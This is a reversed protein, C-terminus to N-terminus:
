NNNKCLGKELQSLTMKSIQHVLANQKMNINTNANEKSNEKAATEQKKAESQDNYSVSHGQKAVVYKACVAKDMKYLSVLAPLLSQPTGTKCDRNKREVANTSSPCRKWTDLDMDAHDKYLMKLHQPRIWWEVWKKTATWNCNKDVFEAEELSLDKVVALLTKASSQSCLVKFCELASPGNCHTIATAIKSFIQKEKVKQMIHVVRDRVRHWSRIWHLKCGKLLQMAADEGVSRKLGNIEADSWDTVIGLLTETPQFSPHDMKCKKFIKTFALAHASGNQHSLHVRAVVEWEMLHYDFAVANFLYTFETTVNYTIDTQIFESTSLLESM